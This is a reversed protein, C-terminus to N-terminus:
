VRELLWCLKNIPCHCNQVCQLLRCLFLGLNRVRRPARPLPGTVQIYILVTAFQHKRFTTDQMDTGKWMLVKLKMQTAVFLKGGVAGLSVFTLENHPEFNLKVFIFATKNNRQCTCQLHKGIRLALHQQQRRAIHDAEQAHQLLVVVDATAVVLQHDHHFGRAPEVFRACRVCVPRCDMCCASM